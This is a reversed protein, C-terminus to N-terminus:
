SHSPEEFFPTTHAKTHHPHATSSEQNELPSPIWYLFMGASHALMLLIVPYVELYTRLEDLLGFLFDLGFLVPFMWLADRLFVPQSSWKYPLVIACIALLRLWISFLYPRHVINYLNHDFLHFELMGGPNHRFTWFLFLKVCFFLALQLGLLKYFLPRKLREERWYHLVFVFTLLITTEKNLCALLFVCLFARWKRQAMLTLGLTFLFLTSFDYIYCYFNAFHYPILVLSLLSLLEGFLRPAAYLGHLLSRLTRTFAALSLTMYGMAILYLAMHNPNYGLFNKMYLGWSTTNLFQNMGSEVAEPVALFTLRILFPLLARYVFPKHAEGSVMDSLMAKHYGDIGPFLTFRSVVWVSLAICASWWLLRRLGDLSPMM